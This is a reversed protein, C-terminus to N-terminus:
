NSLQFPPYADTLGLGYAYVRATWRLYGTEIAFGWEPYRGSFMVPAWIILQLAGAAFGLIYLAV